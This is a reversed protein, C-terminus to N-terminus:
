RFNTTEATSFQTNIVSNPKSLIVWFVSPSVQVLTNLVSVLFCLFSEIRIELMLQTVLLVTILSSAFNDHYQYYLFVMAHHYIVINTVVSLCVSCISSCFM